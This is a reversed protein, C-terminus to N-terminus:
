IYIRVDEKSVATKYKGKINEYNEYTSFNSPSTLLKRKHEAAIEGEVISRLLYCIIKNTEFSYGRYFELPFRKRLIRSYEQKKPIFM